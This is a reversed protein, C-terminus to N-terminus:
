DEVVNARFAARAAQWRAPDVTGDRRLAQAAARGMALVHHTNDPVFLGQRGLTVVRRRCGGADALWSEARALEWRCGPPLRSVGRPLRAM